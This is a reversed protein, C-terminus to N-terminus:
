DVFAFENSMLLTQALQALRDLPQNSTPSFPGSFDKTSESEESRGDGGILRVHIRWYFTDFSDSEGATAVFDITQGSEVNGRIPGYPRNNSKQTGSFLRKGGMWVSTRVGDGQDSRHGLQGRLQVKGAFPATFRRVVALKTDFPTHANESGLYAYSMPPETPLKDAAQWRGEAFVPFPTFETVQDRQDITATGYSWLTRADFASEVASTPQSLFEVVVSTEEASPLRGFVRAFMAASLRAPDEDTVERRILAATSQAMELMQRHNLLFLAQQPVTTFYRGPSHTDPSAFDFTRFLSPLNQRDIMAYITRRPSLTDLTIDVPAGGASLNLSGSVYLLSDRLSEFDRRKRNARALLRNDPDRAIEEDSADASQRYIRSLVIRRVIRKISWHGSFEAALNDLVEPVAPPETRFGFDSPTDVLPKGILHGWLRNVMVRATLPNDSATIREALEWRGSGDTFRPEDQKRLATLFQRPAIPGHNGRQGRILVPSDVPNKKDVLMLPSVGEKPQESSFLIGGLAYYDSAPIPDFKHDHCRACTVTMGLLGRSIVDIRDDLTDLSNLFRRGLTLFGMADLNGHENNPDTRDGALQHRLMEDYPMDGAFARITWDRYRESGKFRRERGALAYGVTDAYRAVDLWHRGFREGFEPSALLQDVLRTYADPRDSTKFQEIQERRPPLGTLDFCLRRVLTEDSSSAHPRLGLEVARNAAFVDIPDLSRAVSEDSDIRQPPISRQPARFAWHTAPDRDLPSESASLAQTDHRPDPAGMEIWSKLLEIEEAGLKGDPPMQLDNDRYSVAVLLPSEEPRGPVLAPGNAGGRRVGAASDILLDGESEGSEVSHCEYCREVLLPRVKSEFFHLQDATATPEDAGAACTVMLLLFLLGLRHALQLHGPPEIRKM